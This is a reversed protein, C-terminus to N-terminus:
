TCEACLLSPLHCVQESDNFFHKCLCQIYKHRNGVTVPDGLAAEAEASVCDHLAQMECLHM